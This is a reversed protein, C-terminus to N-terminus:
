VKITPYLSGINRSSSSFSPLVKAATNKGPARGTRNDPTDEKELLGKLYDNIACVVRSHRKYQELQNDQAESLRLCALQAALDAPSCKQSTGVHFQGQARATPSGFAYQPYAPTSAGTHLSSPMAPYLRLQSHSTAQSATAPSIGAVSTVGQPSIVPLAIPPLSAAQPQYHLQPLQLHPLQQSCVPHNYSLLINPNQINANQINANQINPNQINANQISANQINANQINTNEIGANQISANVSANQMNATQINATQMNANQMALNQMGQLNQLPLNQAQLGQMSESVQQFYSSAAALQQRSSFGGMAPLSPVAAQQLSAAPLSDLRSAFPVGYVPQVHARKLENYLAPLKNAYPPAPLSHKRGLPPFPAPIGPLPFDQMRRGRSGARHGRHGGAVHTRTHKKLDQPRKFRKGCTGCAYPKLPVHVRLHSTIHDRKVTVVSCGEWGCALSLNKNCKRGVHFDCLHDYLKRADTFVERCGRWKCRLPPQSKNSVASTSTRRTSPSVSTASSTEPSNESSGRPSSSEDSAPSGPSPAEALITNFTPLRGKGFSKRSMSETPRGLSIRTSGQQSDGPEKQAQESEQSNEPSIGQPNEQRMAQRIEQRMERPIQPVERPIEQRIEQGIEHNIRQTLEHSIGQTMGHSIGQTMGHSIGQSIEEQGKSGGQHENRGAGHASIARSRGPSGEVDMYAVPHVKPTKEQLFSDM